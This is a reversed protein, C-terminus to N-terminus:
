KGGAGGLGFDRRADKKPGKPSLAGFLSLPSSWKKRTPSLEASGQSSRKESRPSTATSSGLQKRSGRLRLTKSRGSMATPSKPFNPSKLSRPTKPSGYETTPSYPQQEDCGDHGTMSEKGERNYEDVPTGDTVIPGTHSTSVSMPRRNFGGHFSLRRMLSGHRFSEGRALVMGPFPLVDRTYINAITKELRVRDIRRATITSASRIVQTKLREIESGPPNTPEDHSNPYHTKKIVVQQIDSKRAISMSDISSRRPLSSVAYQARDLPVLAINVFSYRRPDWAGCPKAM